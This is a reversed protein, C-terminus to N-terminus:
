MSSACLLATAGRAPLTSQFVNERSYQVGGLPREGHPSRPNFYCTQSNGGVRVPREGHPSRPNFDKAAASTRRRGDTAGRAPLTSQFLLNLFEQDVPKRREGHPSRPNFDPANRTGAAGLTDSGTRPAHISIEWNHQRPKHSGDSGTRPAHISIGVKFPQVTDEPTAGRAPLTSQFTASSCNSGSSSQREGHPSRPNFDRLTEAPSTRPLTSQFITAPNIQYGQATAGRAPLTSQFIRPQRQVYKLATAGRAPLTSQFPERPQGSTAPLRREGHPSRPNFDLACPAKGSHSPREGHPSRPNFYSSMANKVCGLM